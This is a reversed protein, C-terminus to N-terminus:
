YEWRCEVHGDGAGEVEPLLPGELEKDLYQSAENAEQRIIEWAWTFEEGTRCGSGM